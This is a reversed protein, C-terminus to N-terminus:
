DFDIQSLALRARRLEERITMAKADDIRANRRLFNRLHVGAARDDGMHVSIMGLLYQGYGQGCKAQALESRIKGLEEVGDGQELTIYAAHAKLLPRDRSAGRLGKDLTELAAEVDGVFHQLTALCWLHFSRRQAPANRAALRQSDIANDMEGLAQLARARDHYAVDKMPGVLAMEAATEAAGRFQRMELRALYVQRLLLVRTDPALEEDPLALGEEAHVLRGEADKARLAQYLYEEPGLSDSVPNLPPM